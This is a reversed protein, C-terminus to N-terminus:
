IRSQSELDKKVVLETATYISPKCVTIQREVVIWGKEFYAAAEERSETMYRKTPVPDVLEYELFDQKEM